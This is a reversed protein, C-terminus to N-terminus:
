MWHIHTDEHSVRLAKAVDHCSELGSYDDHTDEIEHFDAETKTSMCIMIM